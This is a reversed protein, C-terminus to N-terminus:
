LELNAALLKLNAVFVEGLASALKGCRPNLGSMRRLDPTLADTVKVTMDSLCQKTVMHVDDTRAGVHWIARSTRGQRSLVYLTCANENRQAKLHAKIYGSAESRPVNMAKALATVNFRKDLLETEIL